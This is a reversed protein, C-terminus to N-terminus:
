SNFHLPPNLAFQEDINEMGVIKDNWPADHPLQSSSGSNGSRGSFPDPTVAIDPFKSNILALLSEGVFIGGRSSLHLGDNLLSRWEDNPLEEQMNSWLDLCEVGLEEAVQKAAVAYKRAESNTRTGNDFKVECIPPPTMVIVHAQPCNSRITNVIHKLNESYEDLPVHQRPNTSVLSCDNSGFLITVLRVTSGEV